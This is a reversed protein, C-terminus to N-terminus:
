APTPAPLGQDVFAGVVVLVGRERSEAAVLEVAVERQFGAVGVEALELRAAGPGAAVEFEARGVEGRHADEREGFLERAVGLGAELTPIEVTRNGAQGAGALVVAGVRDVADPQLVAEVLQDRQAALVGAALDLIEVDIGRLHLHPEVEPRGRSQSRQVAPGTRTGSPVRVPDRAAP